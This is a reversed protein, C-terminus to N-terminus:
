AICATVGYGNNKVFHLLCCHTQLKHNYQVTYQTSEFHMESSELNEQLCGLSAEMSAQLDKLNM